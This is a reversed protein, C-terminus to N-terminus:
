VVPHNPFIGPAQWYALFGALVGLLVELGHPMNTLWQLLGFVILGVVIAFAVRLLVSM